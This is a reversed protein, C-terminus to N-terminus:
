IKNRRTSTKSPISNTKQVTGPVSSRKSNTSFVAKKQPPTPPIRREALLPRELASRPGALLPREHEMAPVPWCPASTSWPGERRRKVAAARAPPKRRPPAPGAATATSGQPPPTTLRRTATGPNRRPGTESAREESCAGRSVTGARPQAAPPQPTVAAVAATPVGPPAQAEGTAAAESLLAATPLAPPLAGRNENYYGIDIFPPTHDLTPEFGM